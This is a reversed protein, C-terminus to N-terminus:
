YQISVRPILWGLDFPAIKDEGQELHHSMVHMGCTCPLAHRRALQFFFILKLTGTQSDDIVSATLLMM